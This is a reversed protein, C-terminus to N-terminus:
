TRRPFPRWGRPSCSSRPGASPPPQPGSPRVSRASSRPRRRWTSPRSRTTSSSCARSPARPPWAARSPSASASDERSSCARTASAPTSAQPCARSTKTSPQSRSPRTSGETTSRGSTPLYSSTTPSRAPSSRIARRSTAWAHATARAGAMHTSATWVFRAATRRTCAPSWAALASKGTGVPGTVALLAGPPVDLTVDQLAPGGAGPYTFTVETLSVASAAASPPPADADPEREDDRDALGAIRDARWSARPPEAPLAPATALLPALRSYAAAAAQVRNAMQPIRFARGTFRGFLTLMAVLDGISLDGDIVRDGGAWIIVLVGSTVILTYLPALLADLRAAALEAGAQADALGRLRTAFAASRGSARLARLGTLGEQTFSTVAASAERARVTRTNVRSGVAKALALAVPVPALALLALTPDYILMTVALALSFLLTDWTEVIVEGVGRGLVEVDGVIRAMVDGVPTRHLRDAPWALVGGLADARVDARIRNRAVGLWYRKGIRPLETALTGAVLLLVARTVAAGDTEDRDHALVTDIARGLLVAPLVVATNMLIGCLSGVTLLGAVQRAYPRMARALGATVPGAEPM